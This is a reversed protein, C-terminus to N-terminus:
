EHGDREEKELMEQSIHRSFNQSKGGTKKTVMVGGIEMEEGAVAKLMDWIVLLSINVGMLAEMEVGTRGECSVTVECKISSTTVDPSFEIKIHDLTLPHCLPILTATQKVGLIGALQATTLVPGKAAAKRLRTLLSLSEESSADETLDVCSLEPYVLSFAHPTLKIRGTATATRRTKAKDGVDVMSPRGLLDVHSLISKNPESAFKTSTSFQRSTQQFLYNAPSTSLFTIPSIAPNRPYSRASTGRLSYRPTLRRRHAGILIMPRNHVTDIEEMDVHKEQKGDVAFGILNELQEDTMGSRLYDRLSIEAGDFLCVKIKGDATIRLRNCTSCFHDSMSSIFGFSGKFGPITYSRATDNTEDQIKLVDRFKQSITALLESSPVLKNKHWDNGSFPMFEIFRVSLNNHRTMEVFDIVESDNFGKMVVTNIKMVLGRPGLDIGKFITRLVADHGRRRTIQEFKLPNLTDLSINLHTLGNSVLDELRRHVVLGNSTMGISQLGLSRLENLRGLIDLIDKRIMPEGGTLRIKRVGNKVFVRALRIIEGCSLLNASPSLAVGEAPMCYLCRLNCRETLSIRLYDHKRNYRDVLPVRKRPLDVEVPSAIRAKAYISPQRGTLADVAAIRARAAEQLEHAPSSYSRLCAPSSRFCKYCSPASRKCLTIAM